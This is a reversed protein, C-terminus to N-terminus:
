CYELPRPSRQDFSRYPLRNPCGRLRMWSAAAATAARRSADEYDTESVIFAFQLSRECDICCASEPEITVIAQLAREAAVKFPAVLLNDRSVMADLCFQRLVASIAALRPFDNVRIILM